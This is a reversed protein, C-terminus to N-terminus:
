ETRFRKSTKKAKKAERKEKMTLVPAKKTEKNSDRPKSM